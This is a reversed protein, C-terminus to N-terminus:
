APCCGAEICPCSVCDRSSAVGCHEWLRQRLAKRARHLRVAANNRTVGLIDAAEALSHDEVDVLRLIEALKGGLASSQHLSCDCSPDPPSTPAETDRLSAVLRAQSSRRRALDVIVHRHIRYLWARAQNPDRLSTARELARLAAVQLVDDLDAPPVRSAVFQRLEPRHTVLAATVCREAERAAYADARM